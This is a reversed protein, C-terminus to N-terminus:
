NVIPRWADTDYFWDRASGNDMVVGSASCIVNSGSTYAYSAKTIAGDVYQFVNGSKSQAVLSFREPNAANPWCYLFNYYSTGNFLGKSYSNKSVKLGVNSLTSGTPFSGKEERYALIKQGVQHLDSQVASDNARNQIGNYSVLTVAALIAIVVVVILLEVITFASSSHSLHGRNM